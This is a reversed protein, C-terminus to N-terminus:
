TSGAGWGATLNGWAQGMSWLGGEEDAEQTDQTGAVAKIFIAFEFFDIRGSKDADILKFAEDMKDDAVEDMLPMLKQIEWKDLYGSQDEDLMEYAEKLSQESHDGYYAKVLATAKNESAGAAQARQVAAGAQQMKWPNLSVGSNWAAAMTSYTDGIGATAVAVAGGVALLGDGATERFTGLANSFDTSAGKPNMGKVLMCFEPFEIKGTKNKDVFAFLEELRSEPVNEGMLVLSTRLESIDICGSGDTDFFRYAEKMDEDSQDYFLACCIATSKDDNWGAEKQQRRMVIMRRLEEVTFQLEASKHGPRSIMDYVDLCWIARTLVDDDSEGGKKLHRLAEYAGDPVLVQKTGGKFTPTAMDGCCLMM